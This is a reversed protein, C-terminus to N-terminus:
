LVVQGFSYSMICDNVPPTMMTLDLMSDKTSVMVSSTLDFNVLVMPNTPTIIMESEAMSGPIKTVGVKAASIM